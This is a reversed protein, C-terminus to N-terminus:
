EALAAEGTGAHVALCVVATTQICLCLHNWRRNTSNGPTKDTIPADM